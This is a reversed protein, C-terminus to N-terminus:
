LWGGRREPGSVGPVKNETQRNRQILTDAIKQSQVGQSHVYNMSPPGRQPGLCLRGAHWLSSVLEGDFAAVARRLRRNPM